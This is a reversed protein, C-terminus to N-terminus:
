DPLCKKERGYTQDRVHYVYENMQVNLILQTSIKYEANGAKRYRM